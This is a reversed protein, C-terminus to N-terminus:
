RRTGLLAAMMMGGFIMMGGLAALVPNGDRFGAAQLQVGLFILMFGLPIFAIM